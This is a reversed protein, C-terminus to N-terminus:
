QFNYYPRVAASLGTARKFNLATASARDEEFHQAIDASEVVSYDDRTFKALYGRMAAIWIVSTQPALKHTRKEAHNQQRNM